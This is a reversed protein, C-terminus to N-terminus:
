LEVWMRNENSKEVLSIIKMIKIGEDYSCFNLFDNKLLSDAQIIYSDLMKVNEILLEKNRRLYGAMFDLHYTYKDTHITLYRQTIRDLYNVNLNIYPYNTGDFLINYYDDSRINLESIHGGSSLIKSPYGFLWILYDIEHSLDRIAGGGREIDASYSNRYDTGPRWLPLYQGVYANAALIKQPTETLNQKLLSLAPHRRLNYTVYVLKLNEFNQQIEGHFLPKEVLVCGQYKRANLQMLINIHESTETCIWVINPSYKKLLDDINRFFIKKMTDFHRSVVYVTAGKSKLLDFHRKGISGFGIIAIEM